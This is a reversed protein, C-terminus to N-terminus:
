EGCVLNCNPPMHTPDPDQTDQTGLNLVKKIVSKLINGEGKTAEELNSVIDKSSSFTDAAKLLTKKDEISIDESNLINNIASDKSEDSFFRDLLSYNSDLNDILIERQSKPFFLNDSKNKVIGWTNSLLNAPSLNDLIPSDTATFFLVSIILFLGVIYLM